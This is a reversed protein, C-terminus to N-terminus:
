PKWEQDEISKRCPDSHCENGHRLTNCKWKAEPNNRDQWRPCEEKIECRADFCRHDSDKLNM